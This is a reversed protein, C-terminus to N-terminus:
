EEKHLSQPFANGKEKKDGEKELRSRLDTLFCFSWVDGMGLDGLERDRSLHRLSCVQDGYAKLEERAERTMDPRFRVGWSVIYAVLDALQVGTTLDSHM